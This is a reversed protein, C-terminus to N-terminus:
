INTKITKQIKHFISEYNKYSKGHEKKYNFDSLERDLCNSLIILDSNSVDEDNILKKTIGQLVESTAEPVEDEYFNEHLDKLEEKENLNLKLKM